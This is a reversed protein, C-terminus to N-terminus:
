FRCLGNSVAQTKIVFIIEVTKKFGICRYGLQISIRFPKCPRLRLKFHRAFYPKTRKKGWIGYLYSKHALQLLKVFHLNNFQLKIISFLM